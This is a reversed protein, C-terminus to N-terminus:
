ALQDTTRRECDALQQELEAIRKMPDFGCEDCILTDIDMSPDAFGCKPCTIYSSM